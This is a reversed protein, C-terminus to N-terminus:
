ETLENVLAAILGYECGIKADEKMKGKMEILGAM